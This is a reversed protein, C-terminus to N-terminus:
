VIMEGLQRELEELMEQFGTQCQFGLRRVAESSDYVRDISQFM